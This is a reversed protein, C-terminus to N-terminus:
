LQDLYDQLSDESEDDSNWYMDRGSVMLTGYHEEADRSSTQNARTLVDSAFRQCDSSLESLEELTVPNM